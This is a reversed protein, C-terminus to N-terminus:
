CCSLYSVFMEKDSPKFNVAEHQGQDIGALSGTRVQIQQFMAQTTLPKDAEPEKKLPESPVIMRKYNVVSASRVPVAGALARLFTQLVRTTVM